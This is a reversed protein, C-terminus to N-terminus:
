SLTAWPRLGLSSVSFGHTMQAQNARATRFRGNRRSPRWPSQPVSRNTQKSKKTQDGAINESALLKGSCAAGANESNLTKGVGANECTFIKGGNHTRKNEGINESDLINGGMRALVIHPKARNATALCGFTDTECPPCGPAERYRTPLMKQNWFKALADKPEPAPEQIAAGGPRCGHGEAPRSKGM